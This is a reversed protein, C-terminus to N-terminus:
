EMGYKRIEGFYQRIYIRKKKPLMEEFSKDSQEFLDDPIYLDRKPPEKKATLAFENILADDNLEELGVNADILSSPVLGELVGRDGKFDLSSLAASLDFIVIDNSAVFLVAGASIITILLLYTLKRMDIFSSIPVDRLARIVTNQLKSVVFNVVNEYDAATRLKEMLIPNKKEVELLNKSNVEKHLIVAFYVMAITFSFGWRYFNFMSLVCFSLLFVILSKLFTMFLLVKNQMAKIEHLALKFEQM